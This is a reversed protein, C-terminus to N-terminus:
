MGGIGDAASSKQLWGDAIGFSLGASVSDWEMSCSEPFATSIAELSGLEFFPTAAAAVRSLM